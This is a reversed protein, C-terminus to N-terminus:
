SNFVECRKGRKFVGWRSDRRTRRGGQRLASWLTGEKFKGVQLRLRRPSSPGLAGGRYPKTKTGSDRDRRKIKAIGPIYTGTVPWEECGSNIWELSVCSAQASCSLISNLVMTQWDRSFLLFSHEYTEESKNDDLLKKICCVLLCVCMSRMFVCMFVLVLKWIHCDSAM